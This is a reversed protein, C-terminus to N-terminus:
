AASFYVITGRITDTSMTANTVAGAAATLVNFKTSGDNFVQAIVATAETSIFFQGGFVANGTTLPAFPLGGIVANSGNATSPYTIMYSVIVLRGIKTYVCNSATITLSLGAGSQDTPTWQGEEYDDLTNADSSANQTAPFALRGITLGLSTPTFQAIEESFAGTTGAFVKVNAGSAAVHRLILGAGADCTVNTYGRFSASSYNSAYNHMSGVYWGGAGDSAYTYLGALARGGATNDLNQVRIAASKGGENSTVRFTNNDNDDLFGFSVDGFTVAAGDSGIGAIAADVTDLLGDVAAKDWITGNGTGTDDVLGNYWLARNTSM